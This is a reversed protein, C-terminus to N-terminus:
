QTLDRVERVESFRECSRGWGMLGYVGLVLIMVRLRKYEVAMLM